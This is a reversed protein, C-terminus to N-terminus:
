KAFKKGGYSISAVLTSARNLAGGALKGYDLASYYQQGSTIMWRLLDVTAKGQAETRNGYKQDRYVLIWTFGSIPYGTKVTTDTISVRGDRPIAVNAAAVVTDLDSGDIFAGSKNKVLGADIKNQRAYIAEVYGIAGPTQKVSTAVGANQPAGVGVPWNVTTQPGKSIKSAWEPSAKSLYDVFISTTGSGDSRRVVTIPLSPFTIGPNLAKISADNWNKVDGLFINALLPGDFRVKADVGPINYIPVVAGLAMPIHLIAAREGSQGAKAGPASNLQDNSLAADTGAFDVTQALIQKQGTGSGVSQYNVQVSTAKQYESFLKQYLPNPFSAGAGTLNKVEQASASAGAVLMLGMLLKKVGATKCPITLGEDALLLRLVRSCPTKIARHRRLSGYFSLAFLLIGSSYGM